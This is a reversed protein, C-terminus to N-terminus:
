RTRTFQVHFDWARTDPGLKVFTALTDACPTDEVLRWHTYNRRVYDLVQDVAQMRIDDLLIVGGPPVLLDAYFLDLLTYDFLHMGDVFVCDFTAGEAVLAPLALYSAQERVDVLDTLGARAVAARAANDWQTSQFPDIAVHQAHAAGSDRLAQAMYLASLGNAMGVELTRAFGNDRVVDYLHRGEQPNV